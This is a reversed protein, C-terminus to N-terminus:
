KADLEEFSLASVARMCREVTNIMDVVGKRDKRTLANESLFSLRETMRELREQHDLFLALHTPLSSSNASDVPCENDEFGGDLGEGNTGSDLKYYLFQYTYKLMRRSARLRQNSLQFFDTDTGSHLESVRTFDIARGALCECQNEAFVQGQDHALIRNYYHAFRHLEQRKQLVDKVSDANGQYDPQQVTEVVYDLDMRELAPPQPLAAQNNNNRGRRPDDLGPERGCFHMGHTAEAMCLWCFEHGCKCRMHNCGGNKEIPVQCSPCHRIKKDTKNVQITAAQELQQLRHRQNRGAEAPFFAAGRGGGGAVAPPAGAGEPVGEVGEATGENTVVAVDDEDYIRLCRRDPHPADGCDFCFRHSCYDCKAFRDGEGRDHM